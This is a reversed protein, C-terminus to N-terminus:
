LDRFLEAKHAAMLSKVEEPTKTGKPAEGLWKNESCLPNKVTGNRNSDMRNVLKPLRRQGVPLARQGADPAFLFYFKNSKRHKREVRLQGDQELQKLINLVGQRSLDCRKAITTISPCCKGTIGNHNDALSVLVLKASASRCKQKFAASIYPISLEHGSQGLGHAYASIATIGSPMLCVRERISGILTQTQRRVSDRVIEHRPCYAIVRNRTLRM